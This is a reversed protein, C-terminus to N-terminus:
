LNSLIFSRSGLEMSSVGKERVLESIVRGQEKCNPNGPNGIGVPVPKGVHALM